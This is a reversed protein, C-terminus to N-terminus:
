LRGRGSVVEAPGSGVEMEIVLQPIATKWRRLILVNPVGSTLQVYLVELFERIWAARRRALLRVNM